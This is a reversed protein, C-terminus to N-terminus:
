VRDRINDAMRRYVRNIRERSNLDDKLMKILGSIYDDPLADMEVELESENEIEFFRVGYQKM